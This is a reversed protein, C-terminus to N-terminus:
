ETALGDSHASPLIRTTNVLSAKAKAQPHYSTTNFLPPFIPTPFTSSCPFSTHNLATTIHSLGSLSINLLYLTAHIHNM